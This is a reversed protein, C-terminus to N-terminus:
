VGGDPLTSAWTLASNEEPKLERPRLFELSPLKRAARGENEVRFYTDVELIAKYQEVCDPEAQEQQFFRLRNGVRALCQSVTAPTWVDHAAGPTPLAM